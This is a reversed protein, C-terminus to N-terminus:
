HHGTFTKEFLDELSPILGEEELSRPMMQHSIQRIEQSAQALNETIRDKQEQLSVDKLALSELQMKVGSLQQGVGDHLDKSIRQRETETAVFVAKLGLEKEQIVAQQVRAKQQMQSRFYFLGGILLIFVLGTAIMIKQNREEIISTNKQEIELEQNAIQKENQATNFKVNLTNLKSLSSENM